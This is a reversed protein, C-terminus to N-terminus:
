PQGGKEGLKLLPLIGKQDADIVYKDGLRGLMVQMAELYLRERTIEKAKAYEEYLDLFRSADGQARKVRDIAYGESEQVMKKAQGEAEPIVKNYKERAQYILKEREQRASNVENFSPQVKSPVNTRGLDIGNINLGTEAADLANQLADQALSAIAERRTLVEDLSHDGVVQRMTSESLDKLTERVDRVRFLYDVADKVRNRVAWPVLASNLDGTLMLTKDVTKESVYSPRVGTRSPSIAGFVERREAEVSVPTVKEIGTPMKFHLGPGVRRNFEGFRQVVGVEDQNIQYVGTFLWLLIVVALLIWGLPLQKGGFLNRFREQLKELLEEIEPPRQNKGWPGQKEDWSM